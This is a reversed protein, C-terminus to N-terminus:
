AIFRGALAPPFRKEGSTWESQISGLIKLYKKATLNEYVTSHARGYVYRAYCHLYLNKILKMLDFASFASDKWSNIEPPKFAREYRLVFPLYIFACM